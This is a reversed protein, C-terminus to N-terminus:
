TMAIKTPARTPIERVEATPRASFRCSSLDRRLKRLASRRLAIMTASLGSSPMTADEFADCRTGTSVRLCSFYSRSSAAAFASGRNFTATACGQSAVESPAASSAAESPIMSGIRTPGRALIAAAAAAELRVERAAADDIRRVAMGRGRFGDREDLGALGLRQHLPAEVRVLQHRRDDAAVAAQPRRAPDAMAEDHVHRAMLRGSIMVSAATLM